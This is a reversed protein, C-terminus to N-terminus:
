LMFFVKQLVKPTWGEMDLYLTVGGNFFPWGAGLILATDIDKPDAVVKEKLTHDVEITLNTLIRDVIEENVFEKDGKDKWIEAIKPDLKKGPGMGQYIHTMNQGVAQRFRESIPFREPWAKHCTELVHFAVAPGVLALLDFPAMPLGLALVAEDVQM